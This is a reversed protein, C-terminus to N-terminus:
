SRAGNNQSQRPKSKRRTPTSKIIASSGFVDPRLVARPVGTIAEIAACEEPPPGNKAKNLWYSIMSQSRGLKKALNEQGEAKDIAQQLAENM